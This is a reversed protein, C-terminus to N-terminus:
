LGSVIFSSFRETFSNNSFAEFDRLPCPVLLGKL